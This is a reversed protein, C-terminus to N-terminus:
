EIQKKVTTKLLEEKKTEKMPSMKTEQMKETQKETKMETKMEPQKEAQKGTQGVKALQGFSTMFDTWFTLSSKSIWDMQRTIDDLMKKNAEAFYESNKNEPKLLTKISALSSDMSEEINKKFNKMLLTYDVNSSKELAELVNNNFEKIQKTQKEYIETISDSIKDSISNTEKGNYIADFTSTLMKKSLDSFMEVNKRFLESNNKLIKMGFFEEALAPNETSIPNKLLQNSMEISMDMQRKYTKNLTEALDSYWKSALQNTLHGNGSEFYNEM